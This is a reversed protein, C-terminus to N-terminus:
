LPTGFVFVRRYGCGFPLIIFVIISSSPTIAHGAVTMMAIM